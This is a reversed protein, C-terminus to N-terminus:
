WPIPDGNWDFFGGSDASKLGDIVTLLQDAAQSPSFIKHDPISSQFPASLETDMTGPYLAVCVTQRTKQHHQLELATTHTFMNQAAKSARHSYWGGLKNAGISGVKASINAIVARQEDALLGVFHKMVLLPGLANVKFNYLVADARVDDLKKEPYVNRTEDHLVGAVNLLLHLEDFQRATFAAADAIQDEDTVDLETIALRGESDNALKQLTEAQGPHRCTAVLGAVGRTALLRQVLALGLGRSAGQVVANIPQDFSKM